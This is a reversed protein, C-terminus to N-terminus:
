WDKRRNNRIEDSTAHILEDLSAKYHYIREGEANFQEYGWDLLLLEREEGKAVM